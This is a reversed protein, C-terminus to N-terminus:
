VDIVDETNPLAEFPRASPTISVGPVPLQPPGVPAGQRSFLWNRAVVEGAKCWVVHPLLARLKKRPGPYKSLSIDNVFLKRSVSFPRVNDSPAFAYLM